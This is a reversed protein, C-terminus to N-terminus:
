LDINNLLNPWGHALGIEELLVGYELQLAAHEGDGHQFQRVVIQSPQVPLQGVLDGLRRVEEAVGRQHEGEVLQGVFFALEVQLAHEVDAAAM